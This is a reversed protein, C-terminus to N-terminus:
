VRGCCKKYKLNKGCPCIQNPGIKSSKAPLIKPIVRDMLLISNLHDIEHQCVVALLGVAIFSHPYILNNEIYVEQFRNTDEVRGPFSLCGEQQFCALDYGSKINCNILNVNFESNKGFRVIAINKAIGIQPAALGIGGKGLKNAYNLEKELSDILSGVEEPLVDECKIRLAEENNTIIM